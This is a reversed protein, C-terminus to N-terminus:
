AFLAAPIVLVRDKRRYARTGTTLIIKEMVRDGIKEEFWNLHAVDEDSVTQAMKIEIAVIQQNKQAIFDIERAGKQTRAYGVRAGLKEAYTRLSMVCLSEFLRGAISGYDIDHASKAKGTILDRESLQLLRAELAPDVLYHKPTQKLRGLFNEGEDWCPLDDMLWLRRLVERYAITTEKSPKEDEGATAADLMKNYSM